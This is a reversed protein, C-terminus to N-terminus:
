IYPVNTQVLLFTSHLSLADGFVLPSLLSVFSASVSAPAPATASSPTSAPTSAPAPADGRGKEIECKETKSKTHNIIINTERVM